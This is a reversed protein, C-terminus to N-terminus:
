TRVHSDSELSTSCSTVDGPAPAEKYRASLAVAPTQYKPAFDCGGILLAASAALVATMKM